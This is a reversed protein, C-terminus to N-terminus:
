VCVYVCVCRLWAHAERLEGQVARLTAETLNQLQSWMIAFAQEGLACKLKDLSWVLGSSNRALNTLHGAAIARSAQPPTYPSAQPPTSNPNTKFPQQSPEHPQRPEHPLHNHRPAHKTTTTM